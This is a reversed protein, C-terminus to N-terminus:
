ITGTLQLLVMKSVKLSEKSLMEVVNKLRRRSTNRLVLFQMLFLSFLRENTQWGILSLSKEKSCQCCYFIICGDLLLLLSGDSIPLM